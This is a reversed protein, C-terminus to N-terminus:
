ASQRVILQTDLIYESEFKKDPDEIKEFLIDCATKVMLDIPQRITTLKPMKSLRLGVLDVDDFGVVKVQAPVNIGMEDLAYMSAYAMLDNAAFVGDIEEKQVLKRINEYAKQFMFDGEVVLNQSFEIGFDKLAAKYGEFRAVSEFSELPGSVHAIKRCGKEILYKTAIYGGQFNNVNIRPVDSYDTNNEALVVPVNNAQLLRLSQKDISRYGFVIIGDVRGVLFKFYDINDILQCFIAGYGKKTIYENLLGVVESYFWSSLSQIIIGITDTKRRALNKATVNPTYNLAKIADLVAKKKKESVNATGNIVRSVTAKSVGARKAVDEISPLFKM